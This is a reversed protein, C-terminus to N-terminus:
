LPGSLRLLGTGRGSVIKRHGLEQLRSVSLEMAEYNNVGVHAVTPNARIWNDYLVAPTRSTRFDRMWPDMLTLGLFFAGRYHGSMMYEEYPSSRQTQVDLPVIDVPFGAPEAAKRFSIILDYGFDDPKEWAMNEVFVCLREQTGTRPLKTYGLEVAAELVAKRTTESVDTAGNIAKSVTGKTIGLRRAIDEMTVM